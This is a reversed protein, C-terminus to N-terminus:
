SAGGGEAPRWRYAREANTRTIKRVQRPDLGLDGLLSPLTGAIWVLGPAGGLSRRLTRRAADASVVIRDEYGEEVLAALLRLSVGNVGAELQRFAQDFELVAGAAALERVYGVDGTKDTHSLLVSSPPVGEAALHELQAEAGLGNECHTLIPCGTAASAAGAARLNRVDREDPVAGSTALKILGARHETRRVIPGTYDFADIGVTLDAVMLEALEDVTVNNTWHQPGYYRDHHLGTCALVPVGTRRSVEALAVVDRGASLPMADVIAAVGFPLCEAVEAVAADVDDLLIHPFAAAILPSRLVLHEHPFFVGDPLDSLDGLVARIRGAPHGDTKLYRPETM